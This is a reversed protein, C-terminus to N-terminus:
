RYKVVLRHIHYQLKNLKITAVASKIRGAAVAQITEYVQEISKM